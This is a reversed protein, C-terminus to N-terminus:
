GIGDMIFFTLESIKLTKKSALISKNIKLPILIIVLCVPNIVWHKDLMKLSLYIINFIGPQSLSPMKLNIESCLGSLALNRKQFSKLPPL